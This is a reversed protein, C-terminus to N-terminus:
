VRREESRQEALAEVVGGWTTGLLDLFDESGDFGDFAGQLSLARVLQQDDLGVLHVFRDVVEAGVEVLEGSVGRVVRFAFCRRVLDIRRFETGDFRQSALTSDTELTGTSKVVAFSVSM